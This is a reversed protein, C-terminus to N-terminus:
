SVAGLQRKLIKGTPTRPFDGVFRFQRPVKYAALRSKLYQVFEAPRGEEGEALRVYAVPVEDMSEDRMGIVAAEVVKPHHHLAEEIERPYINMGKSIILDKKRDLIFLYGDDDMRAIDGTHLWGNRLTAATEDSRNYYGRMVNPGRVVLEGPEGCPVENDEDDFVKVEVGPLPVGISRVKRVGDYPNLAVVPAAESLGYGELLPVPFRTEFAALTAEALPASGSICMRLRTQALMDTPLDAKCFAVYLAPMGAFITPGDTVLARALKELPRVSELLVITCGTAIPLLVNVTLSFSHFMPLALLFSDGPVLHIARCCSAINGLFNAHSLMAAKSKGTTGSTYLFIADCEDAVDVGLSEDSQDAVLSDRTLVGEGQGDLVVVHDLDLAQGRLAAVVPLFDSSVVLVKVGCDNLIFAIEPPTLFVNIPVVTAGLALTGYLAEIFLPSNKALLGVRDGPGLGTADRLGHAFRNARRDMEAFSISAGEFKVCAKDPFRRASEELTAKLSM